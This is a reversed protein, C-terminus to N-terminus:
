RHHLGGLNSNTILRLVAFTSLRSNGGATSAMASSSILHLAALEDRQEPARRDRPREGRACCGAAIGTIPNTPLSESSDHSAFHGTFPRSAMRAAPEGNKSNACPAAVSHRKPKRWLAAFRLLSYPDVPLREPVARGKGSHRRRLPGYEGGMSGIYEPTTNGGPGFLHGSLMGATQETGGASRSETLGIRMAWSHSGNAVYRRTLQRDAEVIQLHMAARL